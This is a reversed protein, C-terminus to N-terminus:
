IGAGPAPMWPAVPVVSARCSDLHRALNWVTGANPGATVDRIYWCAGSRSKVAAYFTTPGSSGSSVMTPGNSDTNADVFALSPELHQLNPPTAIRYDHHDTWIVKADTVVNRLTSTAVHDAARARAGLIVPIVIAVLAVVVVGGIVIAAVGIVRRKERGVPADVAGDRYPAFAPDDLSLGCVGCFRANDPLATGCKVCFAAM